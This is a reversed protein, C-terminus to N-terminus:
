LLFVFLLGYVFYCVVLFLVKFEIRYHVPLWHLSVLVPTIHQCKRVGTLVGALLMRFRALSSQSIGMYLGM